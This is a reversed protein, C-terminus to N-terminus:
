SKKRREPIRELLWKLREPHVHISEIVNEMADLASDVESETPQFGRHIAASGAEIVITLNDFQPLSIYGATRFAELNKNFSDHDGILSVILTELVARIGMVTLYLLGYRRAAYVEESLRELLAGQETGIYLVNILGVWNPESRATKDTESM